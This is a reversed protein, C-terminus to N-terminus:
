QAEVGQVLSISKVDLELSPGGISGDQQCARSDMGVKSFVTRM